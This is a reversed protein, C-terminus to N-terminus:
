REILMKSEIKSDLLYQYYFFDNASSGVRGRWTEYMLAVILQQSIKKGKSGCTVSCATKALRWGYPHNYKYVIEEYENSIVYSVDITPSKPNGAKELLM